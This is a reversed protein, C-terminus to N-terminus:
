QFTSLVIALAIGDRLCKMAISLQNKITQRSLGLAQSIEEISLQEFRSMRFIIRTREPLEDVKSEIIQLLKEQDMSEMFDNIVPLFREHIREIDVPRDLLAHLKKLANFRVAQFLYGQLSADIAIRHRREWFSSFVNQVVDEADAESKLLRRSFLFLGHWYRNFLMEFALQDDRQIRAILEEDSLFQRSVMPM